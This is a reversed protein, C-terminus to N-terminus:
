SEDDAEDCGGPTQTKLILANWEMAAGTIEAGTVNRIQISVEDEDTVDAGVMVLGEDLQNHPTLLIVDGVRAGPIEVEVIESSNAGIVGPEVTLKGICIMGGRVSDYITAVKRMDAM